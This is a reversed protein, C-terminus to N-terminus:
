PPEYCMAREKSSRKVRRINIHLTYQHFIITEISEIVSILNWTATKVKVGSNLSYISDWNKM